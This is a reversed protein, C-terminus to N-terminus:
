GSAPDGEVGGDLASRGLYETSGRRIPSRLALVKKFEVRVQAWAQTSWRTQLM